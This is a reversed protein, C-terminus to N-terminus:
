LGAVNGQAVPHRSDFIRSTGVRGVWTVSRDDHLYVAYCREAGDRWREWRSCIIGEEEDVRWQGVDEESGGSWTVLGRQEGDPARYVAYDLGRDTKDRETTDSFFAILESATAPSRGEAELAEVRAQGGACGALLAASLLAAGALAISSKRVM